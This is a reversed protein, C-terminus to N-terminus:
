ATRVRYAEDLSIQGQRALTMAAHTLPTMGEATALMHIRDAEAGPAIRQRIAPSVVLLEHVALRGRVGLGECHVCGRGRYFRDDPLAQMVDRMHPDGPDPQRCHPCIRRVLRQAMVGLLASRLLFAEIGLDLLRTITTAATNTHLTSLVLHGTLASEVAIAATERDRIEGVMIADPDHRLFNRMASAFTFGAARNVQMQQIGGIHYEVPDEITLINIQQKRLELLMAYLTTSKGCGTPGTVLFMGHSRNMLDIVRTHDADSLGLTGLDRLSEQSDLLRLAVSEGFVAPMVSVRMDVVRGDALPVSCRGDQPRRHEALNMGALVKIRSVIAPLLAPLFTRIPVMEDDIRYLLEVDKEGPRVHIDSARRRAGEEIMEAVMRVVPQERALREVDHESQMDAATPDLGLERAIAADEAREYSVAIREHVARPSALLPVVQYRSLFGLMHLAQVDWPDEMAVALLHGSVRVPIARLERARRSTMLELAQASPEITEMRLYALDLRAAELLRAEALGQEQAFQAYDQIRSDPDGGNGPSDLYADLQEVTRIVRLGTTPVQAISGRM